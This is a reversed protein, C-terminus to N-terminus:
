KPSVNMTASEVNCATNAAFDATLIESGFREHETATGQVDLYCGSGPLHGGNHVYTWTISTDGTAGSLTSGDVTGETEGPAPPDFNVIFGPPFDDSTATTFFYEWTITGQDGSIPTVNSLGEGIFDEPTFSAVRKKDAASSGFLPQQVQMQNEFDSLSIPKLYYYAAAASDSAVKFGYSEALQILSVNDSPTSSSSGAVADGKKCSTFVLLLVAGTFLLINQM